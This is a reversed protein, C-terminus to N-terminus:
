LWGKRKFLLLLVAATSAMVFLLIYYGNASHLEPMHDFNMGYIGAMLGLPIFVATIVTLVQMTRNLKHASISLYGEILDGCIDYYLASLSKLREFKDYIDQVAHRLEDERTDIHNGPEKLLTELIREHYNFIRRLKRLSSKYGILEQMLADDPRVSMSDEIESLRNEFELVADLYVQASHKLIISMLIAPDALEEILTPDSWVKEVGFSPGNRRTVLLNSGVFFGIQVTEINLSEGVTRVGRYLLFSFMEFDEFKPPHRDRQADQIALPHCGLDMLLAEEDSVREDVMDLWLFAGANSRWQEVLEVGGATLASAGDHGSSAMLVQARVM